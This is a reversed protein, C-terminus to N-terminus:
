LIKWFQWWKPKMGKAIEELMTHTDFEDINKGYKKIIAKEQTNYLSLKLSNIALVIFNAPINKPWINDVSDIVKQANRLKQPITLDDREWIRDIKNIYDQEFPTLQKTTEAM